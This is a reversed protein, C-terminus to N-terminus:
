TEVCEKEGGSRREDEDRITTIVAVTATKRRGGEEGSAIILSTKLTEHGRRYERVDPNAQKLVLQKLARKGATHKNYTMCYRKFVLFLVRVSFWRSVLVRSESYESRACEWPVDM